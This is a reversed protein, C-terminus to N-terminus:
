IGTKMVYWFPVLCNNTAAFRTNDGGPTSPAESGVGVDCTCSLPFLGIYSSPDDLSRSVSKMRMWSSSVSVPGSLALSLSIMWSCCVSILSKDRLKSLGLHIILYKSYLFFYNSSWCAIISNCFMRSFRWAVWLLLISNVVNSCFLSSSRSYTKSFTFMWKSLSGSFDSLSLANNLCM